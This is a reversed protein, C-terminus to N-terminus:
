SYVRRRELYRRWVLINLVLGGAGVGILTYLLYPVTPQALELSLTTIHGETVRVVKTVSNGSYNASVTYNGPPLLMSVGGAFGKQTTSSMGSSTVSITSNTVPKGQLTTSVDLNGVNVSLSKSTYPGLISVNMTESVVGSFSLGVTVSSPSPIGGTLIYISSNAVDWDSQQLLPASATITVGSLPEGSPYGRLHITAEGGPVNTLNYSEQGNMSYMTILHRPWSSNASDLNTTLSFEQSHVSAMSTCGSLSIWAGFARLLPVDRLQLGSPTRVFVRMDFRGQRLPSQQVLPVLTSNGPPAMSLIPTTAVLLNQSVTGDATRYTYPSYLELWVSVPVDSGAVTIEFLDSSGDMGVTVTGAVGNSLGFTFGTEVMEGTSCVQIDYADTPPLSFTQNLRNGRLNEKMFSPGLSSGPSSLTVPVTEVGTSTLLSIHWLGSTDNGNFTYLNFLQGPFVPTIPMAGVMSPRLLQVEVTTNYYSEFWLNDGQSYIPVGESVPQVTAPSYGLGIAPTSTEPTQASAYPVFGALLLLSLLVYGKRSM